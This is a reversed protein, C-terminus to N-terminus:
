FSTRRQSAGMNERALTSLCPPVQEVAASDPNVAQELELIVSPSLFTYIWSGEEKGPVTALWRVLAISQRIEACQSSFQWGKYWVHLAGTCNYYTTRYKSLIAPKSSIGYKTKGEECFRANCDM